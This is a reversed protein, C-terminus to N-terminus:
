LLKDARTAVIRSRKGRGKRRGVKGKEGKERKEEQWKAGSGARGKEKGKWGGEEWGRGYDGIKWGRRAKVQVGFETCVRSLSRQPM